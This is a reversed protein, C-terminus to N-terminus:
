ILSSYPLSKIYDEMYQWDPTGKKDTPLKIKLKRIREKTAGRGFNFKKEMELNLLTSVFLSTYKNLKDHRIINIKNGNIFDIPQYFAKFGEAGVTICNALNIKMNILPKNEVFSEVGNNIATRTVYSITNDYKDTVIKKITHGHIPSGLYVEFLDGITFYKWNETKLKSKKSLFSKNVINNELEKFYNDLESKLKKSITSPVLIDKLTKNAQRGYNYRYKNESIYRAYILMEIIDMEKKPKLIFIHFATYYPIPQYFTSLVSGSLAVTLTHAPNKKINTNDMVFASIGNNKETRSIFPITNKDSDLDRVMDKLALGNGYKIDFLESIKNLKRM